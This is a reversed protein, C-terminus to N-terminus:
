RARWLIARRMTIGGLGDGAFLRWATALIASRTATVTIRPM